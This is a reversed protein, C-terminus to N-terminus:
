DDEVVSSHRECIWMLGASAILGGIVCAVAFGIAEIM